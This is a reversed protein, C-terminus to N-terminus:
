ASGAFGDQVCNNESLETTSHSKIKFETDRHTAMASGRISSGSFKSVGGLRKGGFDSPQGDRIFADRQLEQLLAGVVVDPEVVPLVPLLGYSKDTASTRGVM